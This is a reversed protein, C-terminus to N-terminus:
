GASLTRIRDAQGLQLRIGRHLFDIIVELEDAPYRGLERKGLRAIPGYIRELLERASPTLTM